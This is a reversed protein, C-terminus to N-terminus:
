ACWGFFHAAVVSPATTSANLGCRRRDVPGRRGHGCVADDATKTAVEDTLLDIAATPTVTVESSGLAQAIVRFHNGAACAQHGGRVGVLDSSRVTRDHQGGIGCNRRNITKSVARWCTNIM